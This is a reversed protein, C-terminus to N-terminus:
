NTQVINDNIPSSYGEDSYPKYLFETSNEDSCEDIQHPTINQVYPTNEITQWQPEGPHQQQQYQHQQDISQAPLEGYATSYIQQSTSSALNMHQTYQQVHGNSYDEETINTTPLYQQAQVPYQPVHSAYDSYRYNNTSYYGTNHPLSASAYTSTVLDDPVYTSPLSDTCYPLASYQSPDASPINSVVNQVHPVSQPYDPRFRKAISYDPIQYQKQQYQARASKSGRAGDERFGKAFPNNAIKLKTLETNQYATVTIFSTVPLPFTQMTELNSPDESEIIHIRVHYKHMSHMILKGNVYNAAANSNSLKAKHFSVLGKMLKAGTAPSDQHVFYRPAFEVEGPGAATWEGNQFRYRYSDDRAVSMLVCYKSAPKLGTLRIRCGPFMRRGTKTLIMETGVNHFQEWLEHQDLSVNISSSISSSVLQPITTSTTSSQASYPHLRETNLHGWYRQEYETNNQQGQVDCPQYGYAGYQNSYLDTSVAKHSLLNM